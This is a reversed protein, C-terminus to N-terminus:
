GKLTSAMATEQALRRGRRCYQPTLSVYVDEDVDADSDSDGHDKHSTYPPHTSGAAVTANDDPDPLGQADLSHANHNDSDIHITTLNYNDCGLSTVGIQMVGRLRLASYRSDM